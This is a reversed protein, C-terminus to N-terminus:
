MPGSQEPKSLLLSGAVARAMQATLAATLPDASAVRLGLLEQQVVELSVGTQRHIAMITIALVNAMATGLAETAQQLTVRQEM